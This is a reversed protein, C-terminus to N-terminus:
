FVINPVKSMLTDNVCYYQHAMRWIGNVTCEVRINAIAMLGEDVSSNTVMVFGKTCVVTAADGAKVGLNGKEVDYQYDVVVANPDEVPPYGCTIPQCTPPLSSWRCLLSLSNCPKICTEGCTCSVYQKTQVSPQGQGM